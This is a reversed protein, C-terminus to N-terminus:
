KDKESARIMAKIAARNCHQKTPESQMKKRGRYDNQLV